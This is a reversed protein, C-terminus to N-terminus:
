QEVSYVYLPKDFDDFKTKNIVEGTKYNVIYEDETNTIGLDKLESKNLLKYDGDEGKLTISKEKIINEVESKNIKKGPLESYNTNTKDSLTKRQLLANQVMELESQLTDIKTDEHGKLAGNISVTALVILITVLIILALLTVGKEKKLLEM